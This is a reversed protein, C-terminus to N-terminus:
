RGQGFQNYSVNLPNWKEKVAPQEAPYGILIACLPVIHEPLGFVRSANEVSERIPYLWTWVAGLGLAHAALLINETAASVDQVWFEQANGDMAKSLDGCPIIALACKDIKPKNFNVAAFADLVARDDVVIFHWPQTNRATPAAMGARLMLDVKDAEVKQSTYDRVSVRTFINDLAPNQWQPAEPREKCSLVLALVFLSVLIKKM